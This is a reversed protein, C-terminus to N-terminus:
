FFHHFIFVKTNLYQVRIYGIYDAHSSNIRTQDIIDHIGYFFHEADFWRVGFWQFLLIPYNSSIALIIIPDFPSRPM